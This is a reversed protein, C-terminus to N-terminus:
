KTTPNLGGTNRGAINPRRYFFSGDSMFFFTKLSLKVLVLVM